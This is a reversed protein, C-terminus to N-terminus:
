NNNTIRKHVFGVSIFSFTMLIVCYIALYTQSKIYIGAYILILNYVYQKTTTLSASLDVDVDFHIFDFCKILGNNRCEKINLSHFIWM